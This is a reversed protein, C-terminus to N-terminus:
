ICSNSSKCGSPSTSPEVWRDLMWCSNWTRWSALLLDVASIFQGSPLHKWATVFAVLEKPGNPSWKPCSINGEDATSTRSCHIIIIVFSHMANTIGSLIWHSPQLEFRQLCQNLPLNIPCCFESCICQVGTSCFSSNWLIWKCCFFGIQM